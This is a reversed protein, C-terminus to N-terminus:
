PGVTVGDPSTTVASGTGTGIGGDTTQGETDIGEGSTVASGTIGSGSTNVETQEKELTLSNGTGYTGKVYYEGNRYEVDNPKDYDGRPLGDCIQGMINGWLSAAAPSGEDLQVNIDNGIWLAASYQPTFGVFWADYNNTTTGTKGAAPQGSIAAGKAIGNSVSTRLIDTMIYAVGENMAQNTKPSGQLIVNGDADLVKTYCNPEIYLGKNPFAGYAAAMEIPSIGNTMGGLGLAASNYDDDSISTIGLGKLFEVSKDLGISEIVKVAAVNISQEVCKRLTVRGKYGSYWNKPWLKGDVYNPADDIISGATWGSKEDVGSELAPGYVAIPKISSGPQRTSTARNYLRSGTLNRGGIMAKVSGTKWDTIVMAAQPQPVSQKLIYHASDIYTGNDNFKFFDPNNKFFSKDIVLNGAGTMKKYKPDIIVNGGNIVCFIGDEDRYLNKFEITYDIGDASETKYFNLRKGGNLTMNGDSDFQCESPSLVFNSDADFYNSFDYLMIHGSSDIVNGNRDKKLGTVHPFNSRKEFEDEATKQMGANFTSYIRLGGNYLMNTAKKDDINLNEELDAKVQNILYDSFYSNVDGHVSESPKMDTKMNVSYAQDHEQQSIMKQQLMLDLIQHQREAFGDNYVVTYTDSRSVIDPNDSSINGNYYRKLPANGTPNKPIAALTACEALTLDEVDKSFYSQAATQVGYSNFGFYITNLYAEMIQDKTLARELQVTYYAERMKRIISRERTLYLNRALQQTITSTGSIEKRNTISDVVAGLLRVYNFGHHKYFTKDEISIVANVLNKPVKDITVNTRNDNSDINQIAQGQDDYIVSTQTLQSYINSPDIAPTTFIIYGLLTSAAVFFALVLMLICRKIKRGSGTNEIKRKDKAHKHKTTM